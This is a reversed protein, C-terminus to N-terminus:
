PLYKGKLFLHGSLGKSFPRDLWAALSLLLKAVPPFVRWLIWNPLYFLRFFPENWQLITVQMGEPLLGILEDPTYGPRVHGWSKHLTGTIFPPFATFGKSPVSMYLVGGPKLTKVVSCLLERDKEEHEAVDMLLVADFSSDRFPLYRGNAVITPAQHEKYSAPELDIGIKIRAEGKSILYGDFAGVELIADGLLRMGLHSM